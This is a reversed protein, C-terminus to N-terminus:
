AQQESNNIIRENIRKKIEQKFEKLSVHISMPPITTEKSLKRISGKNVYHEFLTARYFNDDNEYKYREIETQVLDYNDEESEEIDLDVYYQKRYKKYFPSTNSCAQNMLIKVIFFRIRKQEQLTMLKDKDYELLIIMLEQFLDDSYEPSLKRCLRKYEKDTAIQTILQDHTLM